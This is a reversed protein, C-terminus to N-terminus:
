RRQWYTRFRAEPGGDQWTPDNGVSAVGVVLDVDRLLPYDDPVLLETPGLSELPTGALLALMQELAM